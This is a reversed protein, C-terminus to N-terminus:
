GYISQRYAPFGFYITTHMKRTKVLFVIGGFSKEVLTGQMKHLLAGYYPKTVM